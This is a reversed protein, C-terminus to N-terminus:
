GGIETHRGSAAQAASASPPTVGESVFLRYGERRLRQDYLTGVRILANVPGAFFQALPSLIISALAASYVQSASAPVTLMAAIVTVVLLSWFVRGWGFSTLALSLRLPQPLGLAAATPYLAVRSWVYAVLALTLLSILGAVVFFVVADASPLPTGPASPAVAFALALGFGPIAIVALAGYLFALAWFTPWLRALGERACIRISIPRGLQAERAGVSLAAQSWAGAILILAITALSLLSIATDLTTPTASASAATATAPSNLAQQFTDIPNPAGTLPNDGSLVAVVADLLGAIVSPLVAVVATLALLSGLRKGFLRFASGILQNATRPTPTLEAFVRNPDPGYADLTQQPFGAPPLPPAPPAFPPRPPSYGAYGPASFPQGALPAQATSQSLSVPPPAAPTFYSAPAQAAPAPADARRLDPRLRYLAELAAAGDGARAFSYEVQGVDSLRLAITEPRLFILAAEQIRALPYIREELHVGDEAVRLERGDMLRGTTPPIYQQSM